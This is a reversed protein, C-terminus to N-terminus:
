RPNIIFSREFSTLILGVQNKSRPSEARRLHPLVSFNQVNLIILLPRLSGPFHGLDPPDSPRPRRRHGAKPALLRHRVPEVGVRPALLAQRRAVVAVPTGTATPQPGCRTRAVSTPTTRGTCRSSAASTDTKADIRRTGLPFSSSRPWRLWQSPDLPTKRCPRYSRLAGFPSSTVITVTTEEGRSVPTPPPIYLSTLIAM